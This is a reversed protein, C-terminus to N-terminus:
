TLNKESTNKSFEAQWFCMDMLKMPPYDYGSRKLELRISEFEEENNLYYNALESLSAHGFV